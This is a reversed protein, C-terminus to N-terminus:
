CPRETAAIGRLEKLPPLQRMPKLPGGIANPSFLLEGARDRIWGNRLWGVFSGDFAHIRDNRLFAAPTGDWLYIHVGDLCYARARGLRDFFKIESLLDNGATISRTQAIPHL